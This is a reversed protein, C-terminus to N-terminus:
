FRSTQKSRLDNKIIHNLYTYIRMYISVPELYLGPHQWSASAASDPGDAAISFVRGQWLVLQPMLKTDLVVFIYIYTYIYIYLHTVNICTYINHALCICKELTHMLTYICLYLYIGVYIYHVIVCICM